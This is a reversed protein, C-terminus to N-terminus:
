VWSSSAGARRDLEPLIDSWAKHGDRSEEDLFGAHSLRLNTGAGSPDLEVTVITEAGKTAWTLWTLEVLRYPELRLFRGYHSHRKGEFQTEFFFPEDPKPVMRVSGPVAFWVDFRETWLTYLVEPRAKMAREITLEFAM